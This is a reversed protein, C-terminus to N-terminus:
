VVYDCEEMAKTLFAQSLEMIEKAQDDLNGLERDKGAPGGDFIEISFWGRFGTRKVAKAVELVPLYGGQKGPMPRFAGSWRGRPRLGSGDLSADLPQPPKYADSVQLLYIKEKPLTAGLQQMSDQFRDELEHKPVDERHGSATTPDGWEGGSSQFTDLCLGINPRDVAVVLDYVDRWNTAFTAWCWNEYALRMNHEALMDALRALDAALFAKDKKINPADTSGVQLMDTGLDQMLRIWGKARAFANERKSRGEESEPDWGEFNSFPQLMMIELQLTKCEQRLARAATSLDDWAQPDVKRGFHQEVYSLFDAFALEIARFGAHTIAHLKSSLDHPAETAAPFPNLSSTAISLPPLSQTQTQAM